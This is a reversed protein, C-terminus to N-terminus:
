KTAPGALHKKLFAIGDRMAELAKGRVAEDRALIEHGLGEVIRTEHISGAEKLARDLRRAQEVPVIPDATGHITFIPPAVRSVYTLPSAAKMEESAESRRKGLVVPALQDLIPGFDENFVTPGFINLVASVRSSQAGNEAGQPVPGDTLGLLLAMHGGASAGAAGIRKPDINFKGANARLYRVATRADDIMAPWKANPALRYQITAAFFGEKQLAECISAMDSRRGAMWAGGHIVVVAPAPKDARQPPYLDMKLELGGAKTYVHDLQPAPSADLLLLLGLLM